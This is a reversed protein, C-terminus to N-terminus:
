GSKKMYNDWNGIYDDVHRELMKRFEASFYDVIEERNEKMAEANPCGRAGVWASFRASGFLMSACVKGRPESKLQENSLNIHADAREFFAPEPTNAM